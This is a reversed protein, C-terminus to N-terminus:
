RDTGSMRHLTALAAALASDMENQQAPSAPVAELPPRESRAPEPMIEVEIAPEAAPTEVVPETPKEAALKASLTELDALQQQRQRVAAELQAIMEELSPRPAAVVDGTSVPPEVVIAAAFPEIEVVPELQEQDIEGIQMEVLDLVPLDNTASLPRRPPADPHVDGNRLKPLDVLETIDDDGKIWPMQPLRLNALRDKFSLRRGEVDGAMAAPSAVAIEDNASVANKRLLLVAMAALTLAGAGFAILARAKDGLPAAAAPVLESLGTAGTVSELVAVPVFMTAATAIISVGMAVSLSRMQRNQKLSLDM